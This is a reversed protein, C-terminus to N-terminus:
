QHQNDDNTTITTMEDTSSGLAFMRIKNGITNDQFLSERFDRERRM